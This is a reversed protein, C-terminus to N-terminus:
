ETIELIDVGKVTRQSLVKNEMKLSHVKKQTEEIVDALDQRQLGKLFELRTTLGKNELILRDIILDNNKAEEELLQM